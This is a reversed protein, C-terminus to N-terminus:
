SKSDNRNWQHEMSMTQEDAM